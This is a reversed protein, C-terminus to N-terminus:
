LLFFFCRRRSRKFVQRWYSLSSVLRWCSLSSVAQQRLLSFRLVCSSGIEKCCYRCLLVLPLCLLPRAAISCPSATVQRDGWSAQLDFQAGIADAQNKCSLRVTRLADCFCYPNLLINWVVSHQSYQFLGQKFPIRHCVHGHKCANMMNIFILTGGPYIAFSVLHM